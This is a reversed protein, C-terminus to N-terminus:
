KGSKELYDRKWTWYEGLRNGSYNSYDFDILSISSQIGAWIGWYFGPMGYFLYIENILKNIESDLNNNNTTTTTTATTDTNNYSLYSRSWLRLIENSIEPKPIKSKDCDFGQWEMFHNAMDFARPAPIMYEYDIFSIPNSDIDPLDIKYDDPDNSDNNSKNNNNNSKEDNELEDSLSDPIIINGSLLDCHCAVVKSTNNFNKKFWNLENLLVSHLNTEDADEFLDKNEFCTNILGDIEPVINIWEELLSWIDKFFKGTNDTMNLNIENNFKKLKLVSKEILNIDIISHWQSLRQAILPYIKKNSLECYDLSRGGLFGYILGNNFRCHISPALKFANMILHSCFERDRDIILNTGRGYIRVLIKETKLTEDNKISASLLMNTIGGTLHKLIIKDKNTSWHPFIKLLLEILDNHNKIDIRDTSPSKLQLKPLYLSHTSYDFLLNKIKETTGNNDNENDLKNDITNFDNNISLLNHTNINNLPKNTDNISSVFSENDSSFENSIDHILTSQPILLTNIQKGNSISSTTSSPITTNAAVPNLNESKNDIETDEDEHFSSASKNNLFSSYFQVNPKNYNFPLFHLEGKSILCYTCDSDEM